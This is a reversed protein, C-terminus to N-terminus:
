FLYYEAFSVVVVAVVVHSPTSMMEKHVGELSFDQIQRQHQISYHMINDM